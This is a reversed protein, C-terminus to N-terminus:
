RGPNITFACYIESIINIFSISPQRFHNHFLLIGQFGFKMSIKSGEEHKRDYARHVQRYKLFDVIVSALKM